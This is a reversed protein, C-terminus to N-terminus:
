YKTPIAPLTMWMYVGIIALLGDVDPMMATTGRLLVANFYLTFQLQSHHLFLLLVVPLSLQFVAKIVPLQMELAPTFSDGHVAVHHNIGLILELMTACAKYIAIMMTMTKPMYPAPVKLEQVESLLPTGTSGQLIADYTIALQCAMAAIGGYGLTMLFIM